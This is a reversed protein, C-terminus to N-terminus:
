GGRHKTALRRIYAMMYHFERIPMAPSGLVVEGAEVDRLVGAQAGIRAGNGITLHGTL